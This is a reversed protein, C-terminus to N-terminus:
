LSFYPRLISELETLHDAFSLALAIIEDRTPAKDQNATREREPTDQWRRLKQWQENNTKELFMRVNRYFESQQQLYHIIESRTLYRTSKAKLALTLSSDDSLKGSKISFFAGSKQINWDHLAREKAIENLENFASELYRTLKHLYMSSRRFEGIIADINRRKEHLDALRGARRYIEIEQLSSRFSEFYAPIEDLWFDQYSEDSATIPRNRIEGYFISSLKGDRIMRNIKFHVLEHRITGITKLPSIISEILASSSIVIYQSGAVPLWESDPPPREEVFADTEGDLSFDLIIGANDLEKVYRVLRGIMGASQPLIRLSPIKQRGVGRVFLEAHVGQTEFARAAEEIVRRKEQNKSATQFSESFKEITKVWQDIEPSSDLAKACDIVENDRERGNAHVFSIMALVVAYLGFRRLTSFPKM